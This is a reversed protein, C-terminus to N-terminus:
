VGHLHQHLHQRLLLPGQSAAPRRPPLGPHSPDSSRRVIQLTGATLQTSSSIGPWSEGSASCRQATPPTPSSTSFDWSLSPCLMRSTTRILEGWGRLIRMQGASSLLFEVHFVFTQDTNLDRRCVKTGPQKADESSIFTMTKFRQRATLFSMIMMKLVTIATYFAYAEFLEKEVNLM